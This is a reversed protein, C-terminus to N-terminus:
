IYFQWANHPGPRKDPFPLSKKCMGEDVMKMLIQKTYDVSQGTIMSLRKSSHMLGPDKSLENLLAEKYREENGASNQGSQNAECLEGWSVHVSLCGDTKELSFEQAQWTEEDKVKSCVMKAPSKGPVAAQIEIITDCAARVAVSGRESSGLKNTHHILLVTCKMENAIKRCKHLVVGMDKSSNEEAGLIATHMTDIVLLEPPTGKSEDLRAKLEDVFIAISEPGDDYFQPIKDFFTLNPLDDLGCYKVAAKFRAPLGSTGEGACYFVNLPHKKIDFRGAWQGGKYLAVILDIVVLTKGCGSAGYIMCLDGTGLDSKGGM